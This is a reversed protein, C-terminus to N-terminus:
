KGFNIGGLDQWFEAGKSRSWLQHNQCGGDIDPIFIQKEYADAMYVVTGLCDNNDIRRRIEFRVASTGDESKALWFPVGAESMKTWRTPVTFQPPTNNPTYTFSRLPEKEVASTPVDFDEPLLLKSPRFPLLTTITVIAVCSALIVPMVWRLPLSTLLRIGFPLSRPTDGRDIRGQHLFPVWQNQCFEKTLFQSHTFNKHWRSVVPPRNFGTSGVSGYGWGVSEALAPWYDQTGIENLIPADFRDLYQHLPFDEKLVSGCLIVRNWRLEPHDAIIKSLVYTGFSHAIVSMGKPERGTRLVSMRRATVIDTIVREIAKRRFYVFPMLFRGIGYEGYSTASVSFGADELAPKVEDM